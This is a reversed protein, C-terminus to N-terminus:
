RGKRLRCTFVDGPEVHLHPLKKDQTISEIHQQNPIQTSIQSKIEVTRHPVNIQKGCFILFRFLRVNSKFITLVLDVHALNELFNRHFWHPRFLDFNGFLDFDIMGQGLNAKKRNRQATLSARSIIQRGGSCLSPLDLNMNCVRRIRSSRKISQGMGVMIWRLSIHGTSTKGTALICFVAYM